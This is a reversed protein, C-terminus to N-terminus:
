DVEVLIEKGRFEAEELIDLECAQLMEILESRLDSVSGFNKLDQPEATWFPAVGEYVEHFGLTYDDAYKHHKRPLKSKDVKKRIIRYRSM